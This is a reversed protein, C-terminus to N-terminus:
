SSEDGTHISIRTIPKLPNHSSADGESFQSSVVSSSAAGGLCPPIVPPSVKYKEPLDKNNEDDDDDSYSEVSSGSNSAKISNSSSSTGEVDTSQPKACKEQSASSESSPTSDSEISNNSLNSLAFSVAKGRRPGTAILETVMPEKLLRKIFEDHSLDSAEQAILTITEFISDVLKYIQRLQLLHDGFYSATACLGSSVTAM